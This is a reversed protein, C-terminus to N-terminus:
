SFLRNIIYSTLLFVYKRHIFTSICKYVFTLERPVFPCARHGLTVKIIKHVNGM